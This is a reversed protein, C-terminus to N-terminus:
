ISALFLHVVSVVVEMNRDIEKAKIWWLGRLISFANSVSVPYESERM